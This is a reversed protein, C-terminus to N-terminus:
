AYMAYVTNGYVEQAEEKSRTSFWNVLKGNEFAEVYWTAGERTVSVVKNKYEEKIVRVKM